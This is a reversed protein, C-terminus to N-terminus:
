VLFYLVSGFVVWFAVVGIMSLLFGHSYAWRGLSLKSCNTRGNDCTDDAISM